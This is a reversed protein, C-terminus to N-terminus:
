LNTLLSWAQFVKGQLLASVGAIAQFEAVDPALQLAEQIATEAAKPQWQYLNVFAIYAHVFPNEPELERLEALTALTAVPEEQLAHALVKAYYWDRIQPSNVQAKSLRFGLTQELQKLYNQEPDYQNLRAVHAFLPDLADIGEGLQPAVAREQTLWDLEVLQLPTLTSEPPAAQITVSTSPQIIPRTQGTSPDLYLAQLNYTGAPVDAPALMATQEVVKFRDNWEGSALRGEYLQGFGIAHDHIWFQQGNSWTLLVLGDKLDRWKGSWNYTIPIPQGAIATDPLEVLDLQLPQQVGDFHAVTVLARQRQYLTLETDDPLPWTNQVYFDPNDPLQAALELQPQKANANNGTKTLLLDFGIADQAVQEPRDGLERGYVQFKRQAGFYNINNHNLWFLSPIVGINSRTYRHTRIVNEIVEPQPYYNTDAAYKPPLVNALVPLPFLRGVALVLVAVFTLWRVFLWRGRWQTLGYGLFIGVIPLYPMIYRPDKNYLASFLFYSGTFYVGLWILSEKEPLVYSEKRRPFRKGFHLCLGVIPVILWLWSVARPLDQWYYIWAQITNLAPDGENAAATVNAREYTSFLYIFNTSYWGGWFLVSVFASFILQLIREWQRRWISTGASWLLPFFLFFMCTQKTMLAIGLCSGFAVMWLWQSSRKESFYWHTLCAFTLVTVSTLAIDTIFHLRYYVFLPMLLTIAAGWRAVVPNFLRKGISYTAWLTVASFIWNVMLANDSGKGFILQFPVALLYTLPPFKNSVQWFDRWGSFQFIAAMYNLSGTLHNAEDWGPMSQDINLWLRDGINIGLWLVILFLIDFWTSQNAKASHSNPM